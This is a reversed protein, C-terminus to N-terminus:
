KESMGGARADGSAKDAIQEIRMEIIDGHKWFLPLGSTAPDPFTVIATITPVCGHQLLVTVVEGPVARECAEDFGAMSLIDEHTYSRGDVYYWHSKTSAPGRKPPEIQERDTRNFQEHPAKKKPYTAQAPAHGFLDRM